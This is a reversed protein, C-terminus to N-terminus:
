RTEDHSLSCPNWKELEWIQNCIRQNLKFNRANPDIHITIIYKLLIGSKIRIIRNNFSEQFCIKESFITLVRRQLKYVNESRLIPIGM